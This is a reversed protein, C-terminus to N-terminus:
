VGQNVLSPILNNNLAYATLQRGNKCEFRALLRHIYTRVTSESNFTTIAIEPYTLGQCYHYLIDKEKPSLM